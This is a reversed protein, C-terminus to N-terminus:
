LLEVVCSFSELAQYLKCRDPFQYINKKKIDHVLNVKIPLTECRYETSEADRAIFTLMDPLSQSRDKGTYLNISPVNYHEETTRTQFSVWDLSNLTVTEGDIPTIDTINTQPTPSVVFIYRTMSLGSNVRTCYVNYGQESKIMKLEIDGYYDIFAGYVDQVSM